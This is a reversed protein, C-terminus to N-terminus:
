IKCDYIMFDFKGTCCINQFTGDHIRVSALVFLVTYGFSHMSQFFVMMSCHALIVGLTMWCAFVSGLFKAEGSPSEHNQYNANRGVNRTKQIMFTGNM